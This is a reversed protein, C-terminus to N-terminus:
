KLTDSSTLVLMSLRETKYKGLRNLLVTRAHFILLASLRRTRVQKAYSTQM